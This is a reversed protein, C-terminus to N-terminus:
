SWPDTILCPNQTHNRLPFPLTHHVYTCSFTVRIEFCLFVKLNETTYNGSRFSCGLPWTTQRHSPIYWGLFKLTFLFRLFSRWPLSLYFRKHVKQQFFIELCAFYFGEEASTKGVTPNKWPRTSWFLHRFKKHTSIIKGQILQAFLHYLLEKNKMYITIQHLIDTM